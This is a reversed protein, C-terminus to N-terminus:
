SNFAVPICSEFVYEPNQERFKKIALEQNMATIYHSVKTRNIMPVGRRVDNWLDGTIRYTVM